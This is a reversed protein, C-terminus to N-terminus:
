MSLEDGKALERGRTPSKPEPTAKSNTPTDSNSSYANLAENRRAQERDLVALVEQPTAGDLRSRISRVIRKYVFAENEAKEARREAAPLQSAALLIVDMGKLMKNVGEWVAKGNFYGQKEPMLALLQKYQKRAASVRKSIEAYYRKLTQHKARSGRLGRELGFGKMAEAYRDQLAIMKEPTGLYDKCSLRWQMKNRVEKYVLPVVIVHIHPTTEDEHLHSSLISGKPFESAIWAMCEDTWEGVNVRGNMEPSFSMIFEVALVANKRPKIGSHELIAKLASEPNNSGAILKIHGNKDANIVNDKRSNHRGALALKAFTTLKKTRMIAFKKDM